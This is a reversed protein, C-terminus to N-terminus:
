RRESREHTLCAATILSRAAAEGPGASMRVFASFSTPLVTACSTKFDVQGCVEVRTMHKHTIRREIDHVRPAALATIPRKRIHIGLHLVM